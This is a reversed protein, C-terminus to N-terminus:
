FGSHTDGSLLGIQQLGDKALIERDAGELTAGLSLLFLMIALLLLVALVASYCRAPRSRRARIGIAARQASSSHENHNHNHNQDPREHPSARCLQAKGPFPWFTRFAQQLPRYWAFDGQAM